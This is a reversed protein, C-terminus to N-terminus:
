KPEMLTTNFRNLHFCRILIAVFTTYTLKLTIKFFCLMSWLGTPNSPLAKNPISSLGVPLPQHIVWRVAAKRIQSKLAIGWFIVRKWFRHNTQEIGLGILGKSDVPLATAIEFLWFYFSSFSSGL